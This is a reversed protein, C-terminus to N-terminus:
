NKFFFQRLAKVKYKFVSDARQYLNIFLPSYLIKTQFVESIPEFIHLDGPLAAAASPGSAKPGQVAAVPFVQEPLLRPSFSSFSLPRNTCLWGLSSAHPEVLELPSLPVETAGMAPSATAKQGFLIPFSPTKRCTKRTAPKAKDKASVGSDLM